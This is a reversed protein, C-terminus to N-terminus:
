IDRGENGYILDDGSGGSIDDGAEKGNITDNGDLGKIIDKNITGNMNDANNTGNIEEAWALHITNREQKEGCTGLSIVLSALIFLFSYCFIFNKMISSSTAFSDNHNFPKKFSKM